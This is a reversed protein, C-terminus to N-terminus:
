YRSTLMPITNEPFEEEAMWRGLSNESEPDLVTKIQAETMDTDEIKDIIDLYNESAEAIAMIEEQTQVDVLNQGHTIRMNPNKLENDITDLSESVFPFESLRPTLYDSDETPETDWVDDPDGHWYNERTTQLYDALIEESRDKGTVHWGRVPEKGAMFVANNYSGFLRRIPGHSVRSDTFEDKKPTIGDESDEQIWDIIEGRSYKPESGRSDAEIGLGLEKVCDEIGGYHNKITDYVPLDTEPNNLASQTLEGNKEAYERIESEMEDEDWSDRKYERTM